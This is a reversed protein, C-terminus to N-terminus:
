HSEKIRLSGITALGSVVTTALTAPWNEHESQYQIASGIAGLVTFAGLWVRVLRLENKSIGASQETNNIFVDHAESPATIAVTSNYQAPMEVPDPIPRPTLFESGGFRGHYQKQPDIDHGGIHEGM